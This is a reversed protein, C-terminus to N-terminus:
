AEQGIMRKLAIRVVDETSQGQVYANGIARSAEAPRYGLKILAREAEEIVHRAADAVKPRTIEPILVLREIRDKLEVVLREATKRGVGPLKVLRAIDSDRICRALDVVDMGSLLNLALKPGVGSIKILTRFLDREGRTEFGYLSHADERVSMHTFLVVDQGVGPLASLTNATVDLEYGIGAVDVLVTYEDLSILTGRIRGIM